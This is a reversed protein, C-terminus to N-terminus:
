GIFGEEHTTVLTKGSILIIRKAYHGNAPVMRSSCKLIVSEPETNGPVLNLVEGLFM